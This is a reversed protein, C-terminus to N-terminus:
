KNKGTHSSKIANNLLSPIRQQMQPPPPPLPRSPLLVAYPNGVAKPQRVSPTPPMARPTSSITTSSPYPQIQISTGQSTTSPRQIISPMNMMNDSSRQVIQQAQPLLQRLTHVTINSLVPKSKSGHRLHEFFPLFDSVRVIEDLATFPQQSYAWRSHQSNIRNLLEVECATVSYLDITKRYQYQLSRRIVDEPYDPLIKRLMRVCFYKTDGSFNFIINRIKM